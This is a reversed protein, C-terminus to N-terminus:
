KGEDPRVMGNGTLRITDVTLDTWQQFCFYFASLLAFSSHVTIAGGPGMVTKWFSPAFLINVFLQNDIM